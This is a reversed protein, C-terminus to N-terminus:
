VQTNESVFLKFTRDYSATAIFRGDGSVDCSMVKSDIGGLVRVPKWDGITFIKTSGDHSSSVLHTGSLIQKKIMLQTHDDSDKSEDMATDEGNAKYKRNSEGVGDGTFEEKADWFKVTTILNTHAPVVYSCKGMRLDWVRISNDEGGTAVTYGNPSWDLTLIPKVHGQFVMISRGSRCDWIRGIADMGATAVLAGDCQFGIAFVERSHGKQLLLEQQTNVDWLRWTTDFSTTGVYRGSPHFAVKAVRAEHGELKAIPTDKNLSWLNVGGLMDGSVIDVAEETDRKGSMPHFSLGSVKDKHGKLTKIHECKPVSWLKVYGSWSGIGLMKSDPSFQISSLPRDDGFQSSYTVFTKLHNYWEHVLKKRFPISLTLETAQM